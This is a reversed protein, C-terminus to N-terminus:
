FQRWFGWDNLVNFKSGRHTIEFRLKKEDIKGLKPAKCKLVECVGEPNENNSSSLTSFALALRPKEMVLDGSRPLRQNKKKQVAVIAIGTTLKDHIRTLYEAGMTFDAERFEMYDIINIADPRIAEHFDTSRLVYDTMENQMWFSLPFGFAAFRKKFESKKMESSIYRVPVWEKNDKLINLLFSTKGANFEGAVL